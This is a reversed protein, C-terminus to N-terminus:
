FRFNLNRTFASTDFAAITNQHLNKFERHVIRSTFLGLGNQVTTFTPKDINVSGSSNQLQYYTLMAESGQLFNFELPKYGAPLNDIRRMVGTKFSIERGLFEWFEARIFKYSIQNQSSIQDERNWEVTKFTTEGTTSDFETYHFKLVFDYIFSNEGPVFSFLAPAPPVGTTTLDYPERIPPAMTLDKVIETTSIAEVGTSRNKVRIRYHSGDQLITAALKYLVQDPSYFSGNVKSSDPVPILTLTQVVNQGNLREMTVDLVDSYNTSDKQQAMVLVNGEGLFAKKIRIFQVSDTANIFGDIVTIEKYPGVVDFDTSCASLFVIFISILAITKKM